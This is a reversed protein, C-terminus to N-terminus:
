VNRYDITQVGKRLNCPLCLPQINDISNPGGKSVPVVHDVTLPEDLNECEPNLCKWDYSDFLDTLEDYTYTGGNHKLQDRRRNNKWRSYGPKSAHNKKSAELKEGRHALYHRRSKERDKDPNAERWKRARNAAADKNEIRYQERIPRLVEKNSAYWESNQKRTCSICTGRYGSKTNKAKYFETLEKDVKCTKCIM